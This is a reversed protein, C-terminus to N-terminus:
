QLKLNKSTNPAIATTCIMTAFNFVTADFTGCSQNTTKANIIAEAYRLNVSEYGGEQKRIAGNRLILICNQKSENQLLVYPLQVGDWSKHQCQITQRTTHLLIWTLAM